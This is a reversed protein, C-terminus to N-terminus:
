PIFSFIFVYVNKFANNDTEYILECVVECNNLQM